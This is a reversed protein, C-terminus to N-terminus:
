TQIKITYLKIFEHRERTSNSELGKAKKINLDHTHSNAIIVKENKSNPCIEESTRPVKKGFAHLERTNSSDQRNQGKSNKRQSIGRM